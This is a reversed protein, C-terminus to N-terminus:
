MVTMWFTFKESVHSMSISSIIFLYFYYSSIIFLYYYYIFYINKNGPHRHDWPHPAHLQKQWVSLWFMFVRMLTFQRKWLWWLETLIRFIFGHLSDQELLCFLSRANNLLWGIKTKQCVLAHRTEFSKGVCLDMHPCRITLVHVCGDTHIAEELAMLCSDFGSCSCHLGDQELYVSSLSKTCVFKQCQKAALWDINSPLSFRPTNRFKKRCTFGHALM